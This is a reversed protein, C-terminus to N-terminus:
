WGLGPMEAALATTHQDPLGAEAAFDPWCRVTALVQDILGDVKRLSHARGLELLDSRAIKQHKGQVAAARFGSGLAYSARTMDYAPSLVWQESPLQIFAHNRAHDDDNAIAINFVARQFIQEVQKEHETLARTLSMLDDYDIIERVATHTLGAYSHLHVSGDATRDFRRSMFHAASDETEFLRTEPVELGAAAAMRTLAFEERGIPHDPDLQFKVLWPTFGPPPTQGGAVANEFDKDFAVLAKPQAGGPSLGGRVLAPLVKAAPDVELSRAAAVLEGVETAISDRFSRPSIEPEYALAGMAFRGQCSLKQLPTVENWPVGMEAFHRRMMQQGWWDPLSDDFLGFLPSFEPTSSAHAKNLSTLLHLPSLEIGRARWDRDYQFYVRGRPDDVLQGVVPEEPLGLHRVTLKM